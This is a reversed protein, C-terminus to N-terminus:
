PDCFKSQVVSNQIYVVANLYAKVLIIYHLLNYTAITFHICFTSSTENEKNHPNKTPHKNPQTKKVILHDEAVM